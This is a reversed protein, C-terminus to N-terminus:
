HKFYLQGELQEADADVSTGHATVQLFFLNCIKQAHLPKQKSVSNWLIVVLNEADVSIVIFTM